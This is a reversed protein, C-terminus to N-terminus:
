RNRSAPFVPVYLIGVYSEDLSGRFRGFQQMQSAGDPSTLVLAPELDAPSWEPLERGFYFALGYTWSRKLQYTFIRDPHLDNALYARHWRASYVPDLAPLVRWSTFLVSAVVSLACLAIALGTKRQFGCALLVAAVLIALAFLIKATLLFPAQALWTEPLHAVRRLILFSAILWVAAIGAALLTSIARSKQFSRVAGVACLLALPPVAPLIYSPLKSQSFSFFVIPFFAWCAFFFGPSNAYSKERFARLGEQAAPILFIPWPLLAAITVPVFFWFPQVHQFVPTLYRQFNHQFIFVRLFDPNRLACSIYWPLAVVCFAAIAYPHALRLAARWHNTALAWLGIAGAALLIAAPGKALVGLGLFAGFLLLYQNDRGPASQSEVPSHRLGGSRRMVGAACAMALAISASFLMDPAAARAFGIAAISTSFILPALLAPSRAFGGEDGYHKWGLWGLAFAAALAAFASPLRAAWEAPLRLHFGIAAAWYFLIPKEFWPQGYLRPTVWDGTTAMARAIWAYRPEDPGLFGIAGLNSFLCVLVASATGIAAWLNKRRQFQLFDNL